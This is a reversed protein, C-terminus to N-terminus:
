RYRRRKSASRIWLAAELASEPNRVAMKEAASTIDGEVSRVIAMWRDLLAATKMFPSRSELSDSESEEGEAPDEEVSVRKDSIQLDLRSDGDCRPTHVPLHYTTAILRGRCSGCAARLPADMAKREAAHWCARTTLRQYTGRMMM